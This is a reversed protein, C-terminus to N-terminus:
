PAAMEARHEAIRSSIATMAPVVCSTVVWRVDPYLSRVRGDVSLLAPAAALSLAMVSSISSFTRIM